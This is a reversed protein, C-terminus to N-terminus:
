KNQLKYIKTYTPSFSELNYITSLKSADSSIGLQCALFLHTCIKSRNEESLLVIM